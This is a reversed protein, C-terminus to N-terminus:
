EPRSLIGKRELCRALQLRARQLQKQVADSTSALHEAIWQTTRNQQYHLEIPQRYLPELREVCDKLAVIKEDLTDGSHHEIQSVRQDLHELVREDGLAVERGSKRYHMLVLRRAIGRLWAGFPRARDFEAIKRWAILLTEQFLDDVAAADGVAARLFATLSDANENALIEFMALPEIGGPALSAPLDSGSM